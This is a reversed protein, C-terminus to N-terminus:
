RQTMVLSPGLLTPTDGELRLEEILDEEFSGRTTFLWPKNTQTMRQRLDASSTLHLLNRCIYRPDMGFSASPLSAPAYVTCGEGFVLSASALIVTPIGAAINNM